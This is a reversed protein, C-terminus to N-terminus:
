NAKIVQAIWDLAHSVKGFFGPEACIGYAFSVVGILLSRGSKTQVILPGGSDGQCLQSVDEGGNVQTGAACFQNKALKYHEKHMSVKNCTAEPLITVRTSLLYPSYPGNKNKIHGYGSVWGHIREFESGSEPLCVSNIAAYHPPFFYCFSCLLFCVCTCM